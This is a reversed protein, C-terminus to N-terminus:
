AEYLIVSNKRVADAIIDRLQEISEVKVEDGVPKGYRLPTFYLDYGEDTPVSFGGLMAMGVKLRYYEKIPFYNTPDPVRVKPKKFVKALEVVVPIIVEQVYSPSQPMKDAPRIRQSARKELESMYAELRQTYADILEQIM